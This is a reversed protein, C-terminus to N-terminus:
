AGVDGSVLFLPPWIPMAEWFLKKHGKLGGASLTGVHLSPSATMKTRPCMRTGAKFARTKSLPFARSSDKFLSAAGLTGEPAILHIHAASAQEAVERSPSSM